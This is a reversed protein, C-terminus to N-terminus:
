PKYNTPWPWASLKCTKKNLAMHLESAYQMASMTERNHRDNPTEWIGFLPSEPMDIFEKSGTSKAVPRKKDREKHANKSVNRPIPIHGECKTRYNQGTTCNKTPTIRDTSRKIKTDSNNKYTGQM